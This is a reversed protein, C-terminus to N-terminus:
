RSALAQSNHRSVKRFMAPNRTQHGILKLKDYSRTVEDMMLSDCLQIAWVFDSGPATAVPDHSNEIAEKLLSNTLIPSSQIDRFSGTAVAGPESKTYADAESVGSCVQQALMRLFVYEFKNTSTRFDGLPAAEAAGGSTRRHSHRRRVAARVNRAIGKTRGKAGIFGFPWARVLPMAGSCDPQLRRPTAVAACGAAFGCLM